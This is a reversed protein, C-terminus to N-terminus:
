KQLSLRWSGILTAQVIQIKLLCTSWLNNRNSHCTKIGMLALSRAKYCRIMLSSSKSIIISSSKCGKRDEISHNERVVIQAQSVGKCQLTMTSALITLSIPLDNSKIIVMNHRLIQNTQLCWIRASNPHFSNIKALKDPAWTTTKITTATVIITM